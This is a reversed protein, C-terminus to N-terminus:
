TSSEPAPEGERIEAVPYWIADFKIEGRPKGEYLVETTSSMLFM